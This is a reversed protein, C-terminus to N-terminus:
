ILTWTTESAPGDAKVIAEDDTPTYRFVRYNGGVPKERDPLSVRVPRDLAYALDALTELTMNSTGNFKRSIFSKNKGLIEAIRAQTLGRKGNEESLAQHLEHRIDAIMRAYTRARKDLGSRSSMM